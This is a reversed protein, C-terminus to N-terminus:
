ESDKEVPKWILTDNVWFQCDSYEAFYDFYLEKGDVTEAYLVGGDKDIVYTCAYWRVNDGNDYKLTIM